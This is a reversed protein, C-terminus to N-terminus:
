LSPTPSHRGEVPIHQPHAPPSLTNKWVKGDQMILQFNDRDQLVEINKLPDGNIVLLDAYAGPEVVGLGIGKKQKEAASLEPYADKYPNM